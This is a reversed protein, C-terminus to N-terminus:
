ELIDLCGIQVSGDMRYMCAIGNERRADRGFHDPFSDWLCSGTILRLSAFFEGLQAFALKLDSRQDALAQRIRLNGLAELQLGVRDFLCDAAYQCFEFDPIPDVDGDKPILGVNCVM